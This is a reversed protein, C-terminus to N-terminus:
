DSVNKPGKEYHSMLENYEIERLNVVQESLDGKIFDQVSETLDMRQLCVGVKYEGQRDVYLRTGYFGEKCDTPNNRPCGDCVELRTPRIQKFSVLRGNPLAYKVRANSSGAEITTIIPTARMKALLRYIALASKHTDSLDPLIRVDLRSDFEELLRKVRSAHSDDSMVINAGVLIGADAAAGISAHLASIKKAALEEDQFRENQVSALESPNTGFISFNIKELGQLACEKIKEAGKEGNSTMGVSYGLARATAIIQPLKPHLTPEGGTLHLERLGLQDRMTILSDSFSPDGPNMRGPLFDVGNDESFVSIRGSRGTIGRIAIIGGPNDVAVPTGENHCFTCTMGCADLVKARLSLDKVVQIPANQEATILGQIEDSDPVNGLDIDWGLPVWEKITSQIEISPGIESPTTM